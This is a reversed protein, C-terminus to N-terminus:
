AAPPASPAIIIETELQTTAVAVRSDAAGYYIFIRQGVVDAATPFVVNAVLGDREDASDPSLVPDAARYVVKRPDERDLVMVGAQYCVDKVSTTADPEQGQVGHYYIVWGSSTLIPPTGGGIKLNEWAAQPTALLSSHYTDVLGDVNRKVAELSIYSLWMSGRDDEVGDPVSKEVAGDPRAVLYTPRHVVSLAPRGDPDVVAEPFFSADKNGFDTFDVNAEPHFRLLGLRRWSEADKSVAVAVRPGFKGLAVYAMVYLGLPRVFTIRPDEVGGHSRKDHEYPEVPELAFGHRQVGVPTGDDFLAAVREIRSFNGEAVARPFLLLEGNRTRASAPNLVGWSEAPNSPEPEMVVGLRRLRFQALDM